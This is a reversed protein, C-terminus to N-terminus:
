APLNSFVFNYREAYPNTTDSPKLHPLVKYISEIDIQMADALAAVRQRIFVLDAEISTSM